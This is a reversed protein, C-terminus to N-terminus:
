PQLLYPLGQSFVTIPLSIHFYPNEDSEISLM